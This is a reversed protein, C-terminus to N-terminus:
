AAGSAVESIRYASPKQNQRAFDVGEILNSGSSGTQVGQTNHFVPDESFSPRILRDARFGEIEAVADGFSVFKISVAMDFAQALARLTKLSWSSHDPRELRSIAPQTTEIKEALEKQSWGERERLTRIQTAILSDLFSEMYSHRYDRDLFRRLLRKRIATM